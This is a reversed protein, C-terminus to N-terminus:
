KIKRNVLMYISEIFYKSIINFTHDIIKSQSKNIIFKYYLGTKEHHQNEDAFVNVGNITPSERCVFLCLSQVNDNSYLLKTQQIFYCIDKWNAVSWKCQILVRFNNHLIMHDIGCLHQGYKRKIDIERLCEYKTELKEHLDDELKFGKKQPSSM